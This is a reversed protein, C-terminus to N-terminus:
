SNGNENEEMKEQLLKQNELVFKPGFGEINLPGQIGKVKGNKTFEFGTKVIADFVNIPNGFEEILRQAKKPGADILGEVLFIQKDKLSLKKPCSRAVFTETIGDQEMKALSRLFLATEVYSLIGDQEMKALSRLFLATEVYSLVPVVPVGMMCIKALAGYLAPSRDKYRTFMQEYDELVIIPKEYTEILKQIQEFLRGDFLSAAFDDGRKREVGIRSSLIYDGIEITQLEVDVDLKVFEERIPGREREDVIIKVM